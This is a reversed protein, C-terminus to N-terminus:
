LNRMHWIPCQEGEQTLTEEATSGDDDDDEEDADASTAPTTPQSDDEDEDEDEDEDTTDMYGPREHIRVRTPDDDEDPVDYFAADEQAALDAANAAELHAAGVM